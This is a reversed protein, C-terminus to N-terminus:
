NCHSSTLSHFCIQYIFIFLVAQIQNGTNQPIAKSTRQLCTSSRSQVNLFVFVIGLINGFKHWPLIIINM